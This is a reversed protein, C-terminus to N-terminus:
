NNKKITNRYRNRNQILCKEKNNYYYKLASDLIHQRHLIYYNKYYNKYYDRKDKAFGANNKNVCKINNIFINEIKELYNKSTSPCSTILEMKIKGLKFLDYAKIYTGVNSICRRYGCKHIALRSGLSLCTSSVYILSPDICSTIKYIKGNIYKNYLIIANNAM